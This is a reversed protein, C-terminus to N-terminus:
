NVTLEKFLYIYILFLMSVLSTIHKIIITGEFIELLSISFSYKVFLHHLFM